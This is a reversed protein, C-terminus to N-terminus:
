ERRYSTPSFDFDLGDFRDELELLREKPYPYDQEEGELDTSETPEFYTEVRVVLPSKSKRMVNKVFKKSPKEFNFTNEDYRYPRNHSKEKPRLPNKSYKFHPDEDKIRSGDLQGM